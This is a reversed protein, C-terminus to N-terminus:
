RGHDREGRDAAASVRRQVTPTLCASDPRHAARAPLEVVFRAGPSHGTDVRITGGHRQVIERTIALGLGTGGDGRTRAEDIRVFREFIRERISPHSAPDTM